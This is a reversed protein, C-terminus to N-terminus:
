RLRFRAGTAAVFEIGDFTLRAFGEHGRGAESRPEGLYPGRCRGTRYRSACREARQFVWATNYKFEVDIESASVQHKAVKTRLDSISL